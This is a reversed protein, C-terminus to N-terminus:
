KTALINRSEVSIPHPDSQYHPQSSLTFPAINVFNEKWFIAATCSFVRAHTFTGFLRYIFLYIFLDFFYIFLIFFCIQLKYDSCGQM